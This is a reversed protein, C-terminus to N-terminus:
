KGLGQFVSSYLQLIKGLGEDKQLKQSQLANLQLQILGLEQIIQLSLLCGSDKGKVVYITGVTCKKKTEIITEFKGLFDVPIKSQYPYGKTSIHLLKINHLNVFTDSDIVYITAGSDMIAKFNNGAVNIWAKPTRPSDSSM